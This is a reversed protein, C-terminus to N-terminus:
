KLSLISNSFYTENALGGAERKDFWTVHCFFKLLLSNLEVPSKMSQFNCVLSIFCSKKLSKRSGIFNKLVPERQTQRTKM